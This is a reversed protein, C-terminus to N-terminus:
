RVGGAAGQRPTGPADSMREIARDKDAWLANLWAQFAERSAADNEYDGVAPPPLVRVDVRVERVRGCFLDAVSPRGAPYVITVDVVAEILRDMAGLVFAIGGARPLLLHRYPSGQSAQKQATFRTGEVFNMVSVPLSRYKECARRTAEIDKGRLQPHRDLTEKSYRKMFPFDLAWWALGLVPVWILQQKLFFRLLPIRRNFVAQLVPIDVWSQHNSVVLYWGDRRLGEVTNVTIRTGALRRILWSNVAIWSEGIAALVRSLSGRLVPLPMLLKLAALAFLLTAHLLTSALVLVSGTIARALTILGDFM